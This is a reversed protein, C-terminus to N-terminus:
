RVEGNVVAVAPAAGAVPPADQRVGLGRVVASASYVMTLGFGVLVVIVTFLIRDFALKKAM